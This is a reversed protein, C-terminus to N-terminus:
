DPEGAPPAPASNDRFLSALWVDYAEISGPPAMACADDYGCGHLKAHLLTEV